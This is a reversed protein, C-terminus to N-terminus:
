SNPASSVFQVAHVRPIDRLALELGQQLKTSGRFQLTVVGTTEEVNLLRAVGGMAIVAQSLRNLEELVDQALTTAPFSQDPQLQEVTVLPGYHERLVREIGMQMTVTSSACSGCAGQLLLQVTQNEAFANVVAVNGGDAVLYPRVEDLIRDISEVSFEENMGIMRSEPATNSATTTAFPSVIAATEQQEEETRSSSSAQDHVRSLATMETEEEWEEDENDDDDDQFLYSSPDIWEILLTAGANVARHKWEQAVTQMVQPQSNTFSLARVGAITNLQKQWVLLTQYLDQTVGVFLVGSDDKKNQPYVAYVAAVARPQAAKLGALVISGPLIRQGNFMPTATPNSNGDNDNKSRNESFLSSFTRVLNRRQSQKSSLTTAQPVFSDVPRAPIRLFWFLPILLLLSRAMRSLLSHLQKNEISLSSTM